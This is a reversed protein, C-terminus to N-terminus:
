RRGNFSSAWSMDPTTSDGHGDAMRDADREQRRVIRARHESLLAAYADLKALSEPPDDFGIDRLERAYAM